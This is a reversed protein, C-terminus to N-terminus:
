LFVLLTHCFTTVPPSVNSELSSDDTTLSVPWEYWDFFFMTRNLNRKVSHSNRSLVKFWETPAKNRGTRELKANLTMNWKMGCYIVVSVSPIDTIKHSLFM